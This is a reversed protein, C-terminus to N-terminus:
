KPSSYFQLTFVTGAVEEALGKSFQLPTCNQVAAIAAAVFAKRQEGDGSIRSATPQPPGMLTGNGRFAFRLTVFSDEYGAPPTWCKGLAAGLDDVTNLPEARLQGATLAVLLTGAFALKAVMYM